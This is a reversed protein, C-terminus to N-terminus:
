AVSEAAADDRAAQEAICDIVTDILPAADEGLWVNGDDDVRAGM